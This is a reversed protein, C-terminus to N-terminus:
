LVIGVLSCSPKSHESWVGLAQLPLSLWPVWLPGGTRVM